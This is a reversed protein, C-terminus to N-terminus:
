RFRRREERRSRLKPMVVEIDDEALPYSTTSTLGKARRESNQIDHKQVEFAHKQRALPDHRNFGRRRRRRKGPGFDRYNASDVHTDYNRFDPHPIAFSPTEPLGPKYPMPIKDYTSTEVDLSEASLAQVGTTFAVIATVYKFM